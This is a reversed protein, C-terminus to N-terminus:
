RHEVARDRHRQLRRARGAGRGDHRQATPLPQHSAGYFAELADLSVDEIDGGISGETFSLAM